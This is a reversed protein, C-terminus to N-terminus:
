TSQVVHEREGERRRGRGVVREKGRERRGGERPERGSIHVQMLPRGKGRDDSPGQRPFTNKILLKDESVCVVAPQM